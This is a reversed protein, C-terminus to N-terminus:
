CDGTYYGMYPDFGSEDDYDVFPEEDDDWEDNYYLSECGHNYIIQAMTTADKPHLYGGKVLDVLRGICVTHENELGFEQCALDFCQRLTLKTYDM